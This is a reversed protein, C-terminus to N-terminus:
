LFESPAVLATLFAFSDSFGRLSSFKQIRTERAEVGVEALSEKELLFLDKKSGEKKQNKRGDKTKHKKGKTGYEM